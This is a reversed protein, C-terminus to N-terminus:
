ETAVLEDVEDREPVIVIAPWFKLTDCAPAGEPPSM